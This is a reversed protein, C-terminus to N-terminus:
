HFILAFRDGNMIHYYDDYDNEQCSVVWGAKKADDVTKFVKSAGFTTENEVYSDYKGGMSYVLKFNEPRTAKLAFINKTYGFFNIGPFNEAVNAWARYYTANYFEGSSHPRIAGITMSNKRKPLLAAIGDVLVSTMSTLDLGFLAILNNYHCELTQAYQNEDGAAYCAFQTSYTHKLENTMVDYWSMCDLAGNCTVGAPIDFSYVKKNMHAQLAMIKSNQTFSIKGTLGRVDRMHAISKLLSPKENTPRCITGFQTQITQYATNKAM